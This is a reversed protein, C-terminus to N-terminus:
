SHWVGEEGPRGKGSTNGLRALLPFIATNWSSSDLEKWASFPSPLWRAGQLVPLSVTVECSALAPPLRLPRLLICVGKQKARICFGRLLPAEAGGPSNTNWLLSWFLYFTSFVTALPCSFTVPVFVALEKQTEAIGAERPSGPEQWNGRHQKLRKGRSFSGGWARCIREWTVNPNAKFCMLLFCFLFFLLSFPFTNMTISVPCYRNM